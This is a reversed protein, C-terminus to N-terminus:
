HHTKNKKEYIDSINDRQLTYNDLTNPLNIADMKFKQILTQIERTKM